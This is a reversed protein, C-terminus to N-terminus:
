RNILLQIKMKGLSFIDGHTIPYPKNPSLKQGNLLTGNASDFDTLLTYPQGIKISAHLRSVGFEYAHYPALDVDPLIPQDEASRGLTYETLGELQIVEGSDVLFLSLTADGPTAPVAQDLDDDLVGRLDDALSSPITITPDRGTISLPTGCEKCYLAGPMENNGCNPCVIM